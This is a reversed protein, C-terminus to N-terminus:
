SFIKTYIDTLCFYFVQEGIEDEEEEEEKKEYHDAM